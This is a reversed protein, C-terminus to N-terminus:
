IHNSGYYICVLWFFGCCGCYKRQIFHQIATHSYFFTPVHAIHWLEKMIVAFLNFRSFFLCWMFHFSVRENFLSGKENKEASLFAILHLFSYAKICQVNNRTEQGYFFFVTDDVVRNKKSSKRRSTQFTYYCFLLSFFFRKCVQLLLSGDPIVIRIVYRRKSDLRVCVYVEEMQWYPVPAAM